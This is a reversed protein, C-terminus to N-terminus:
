SNKKLVESFITKLFRVADQSNLREMFSQATINISRNVRTLVECIRELSSHAPNLSAVLLAAVFDFGRIKSSSRKVFNTEWAYQDIDKKSFTSRISDLTRDVAQNAVAKTIPSFKKNISVPFHTITM